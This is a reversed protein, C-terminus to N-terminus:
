INVPEEEKTPAAKWRKDDQETIKHKALINGSLVSFHFSDSLCQMLHSRKRKKQIRERFDNQLLQCLFHVYGEHRHGKGVEDQVYGHDGDLEVQQVHPRAVRGEVGEDDVGGVPPDVGGVEDDVNRGHLVVPRDVQDEEPVNSM